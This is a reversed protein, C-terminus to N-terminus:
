QAPAWVRAGKGDRTDPVLDAGATTLKVVRYGGVRAGKHIPYIKGHMRLSAQYNITGDGNGVGYVATVVPRAEAVPPADKLPMAGAIPAGTSVPAGPAVGASGAGPKMLEDRLKKITLDSELREIQGVTAVDVQAWAPGAGALTALLILLHKREM